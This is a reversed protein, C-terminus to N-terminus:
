ITNRCVAKAEAKVAASFAERVEAEWSARMAGIYAEIEARSIIACGGQEACKPM